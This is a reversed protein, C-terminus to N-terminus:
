ENNDRRVQHVKFNEYLEGMIWTAESGDCVQNYLQDWVRKFVLDNLKVCSWSRDWIEDWIKSKLSKSM